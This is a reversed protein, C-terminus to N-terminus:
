KRIVYYLVRDQLPVYNDRIDVVLCSGPHRKATWRVLMSFCSASPFRLVAAYAKYMSTLDEDAQDFVFLFDHAEKQAGSESYLRYRVKMDRPFRAVVDEAFRPGDGPALGTVILSPNPSLLSVTFSRQRITSLLVGLPVNDDDHTGREGMPSHKMAMEYPPLALHELHELHEDKGEKKRSEDKRNWAERRIRLYGLCEKLSDTILVM